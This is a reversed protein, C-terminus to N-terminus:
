HRWTGSEEGMHKIYERAFETRNAAKKNDKLQQALKIAEVKYDKTYRRQERRANVSM